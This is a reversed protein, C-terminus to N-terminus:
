VSLQGRFWGDRLAPVTPAMFKFEQDVPYHAWLGECEKRFGFDIGDCFSSGIALFGREFDEYMRTYDYLMESDEPERGYRKPDWWNGDFYEDCRYDIWRQPVIPREISVDNKRVCEELIPRGYDINRLEILLDRDTKDTGLTTKGPFAGLGSDAVTSSLSQLFASWRDDDDCSVAQFYRFTVIDGNALPSALDLHHEIVIVRTQM